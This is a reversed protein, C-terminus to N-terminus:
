WMKPFVRAGRKSPMVVPLYDNTYLDEVPVVKTLKYGKTLVDRTLVWKNRDMRWLGHKEQEPSLMGDLTVDWVERNVRADGHPFHKLWMKVAEDPHEIAYGLSRVSARMFKRLTEANAKAYAENVGIGLGYINLGYDAMFLTRVKKRQKAAMAQMIPEIYDFGTIVETARALLGAERGAPDVAILKFKNFDLGNLEALAPLVARNADGVPTGITKEAIDKLSKVGSDELFRFVFPARDHYMAIMRLPQGQARALLLSGTDPSATNVSRAVLQKTADGGGYGRLITVQLGEERYFGKEVGPYFATDRGSPVWAVMHKFEQAFPAERGQEGAALLFVVAFLLSVARSGFGKGHM